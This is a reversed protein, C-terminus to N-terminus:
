LNEHQHSGDYVEDAEDADLFIIQAINMGHEIRLRTMPMLMGEGKGEYGADWLATTLFAGSRALRSRPFVYGVCDHPIEIKEDYTVVFAGLNITVLGDDNPYVEERIGKDYEGEKVLPMGRVREIKGVSLDVGNPQIQEEDVDGDNIFQAVYKGSKVPM